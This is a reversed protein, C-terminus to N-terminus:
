GLGIILWCIGPVLRSRLWYQCWEPSRSCLVVCSVTQNQKGCRIADSYRRESDASGQDLGERFWPAVSSTGVMRLGFRETRFQTKLEPMLKSMREIKLREYESISSIPFRSKSEDGFQALQAGHQAGSTFVARASDTDRVDPLEPSAPPAPMFVPGIQGPAYPRGAGRNTSGHQGTKYETKGVALEMGLSNSGHRIPFGFAM